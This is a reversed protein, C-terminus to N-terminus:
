RLSGEHTRATQAVPEQSRAGAVSVAALALGWVVAAAGWGAGFSSPLDPYAISATGLLVASVSSVGAAVGWGGPRRAALATLLAVILVIVGLGVWHGLEAHEDAAPAGRQISFHDAAYVVAPVLWVVALGLTVPSPERVPRLLDRSAPHSVTAIAALALMIILPEFFFGTAPMGVGVFLLPFALSVLMAGVRRRPGGIQAALGGVLVVAFLTFAIDHIFHRDGWGTFVEQAANPLLLVLSMLALLGGSAIFLGWRVKGAARRGTGAATTTRMTAGKEELTM